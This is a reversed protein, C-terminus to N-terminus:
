LKSKPVFISHRKRGVQQVTYSHQEKMLQIERELKEMVVHPATENDLRRKVDDLQVLLSNETNKSENLKNQADKLQNKLKDIILDREERKKREDSLIKQLERSM